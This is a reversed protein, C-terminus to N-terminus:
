RLRGKQMYTKETCFKTLAMKLLNKNTATAIGFKM